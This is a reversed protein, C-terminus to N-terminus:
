TADRLDSSVPIPSSSSDYGGGSSSFNSVIFEILDLHGQRLLFFLQAAVVHPEIADFFVNASRFVEDFSAQSPATTQYRQLDRM